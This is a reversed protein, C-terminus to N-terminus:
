VGFALALFHLLPPMIHAFLPRSVVLAILIGFPGLQYMLRQGEPPLFYSLVYHGDLPPVPILNFIALSFNLLVILTFAGFFLQPTNDIGGFALFSVRAVAILLLGLLVNSAPGAMAIKVPDLRPNNLNRPNFPVPKAWGFPFGALFMMVVPVVVTGLPDIHKLPNLTIRGLMKATDDGCWYGMLGHAAEHVSLSFLVGIFYVSMLPVDVSNM